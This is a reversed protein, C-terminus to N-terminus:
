SVIDHFYQVNWCQLEWLLCGYGEAVHMWLGRIILCLRASECICVGFDLAWPKEHLLLDLVVFPQCFWCAYSLPWFVCPDYVRPMVNSPFLWWFLVSKSVCLWSLCHSAPSVCWPRAVLWFPSFSQCSLHSFLLLSESYFLFWLWSMGSLSSSTVSLSKTSSKNNLKLLVEFCQLCHIVLAPSKLKWNYPSNAENASSCIIAKTLSTLDHLSKYKVNWPCLPPFNLSFLWLPPLIYIYKWLILFINIRIRNVSDYSM